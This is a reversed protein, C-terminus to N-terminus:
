NFVQLDLVTKMSTAVSRDPVHRIDQTVKWVIMVITLLPWKCFLFFFINAFYFSLLFLEKCVTVLFRFITANKKKKKKKSFKLCEEITELNSELTLLRWRFHFDLIHLKGREYLRRNIIDNTDDIRCICDNRKTTRWGIQNAYTNKSSKVCFVSLCTVM